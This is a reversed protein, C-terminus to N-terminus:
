CVSGSCRQRAMCRWPRIFLPSLLVSQVPPAPYAALKAGTLEFMVQGIAIRLPTAVLLGLLHLPLAKVARYGRPLLHRPRDRPYPLKEASADRRASSHTYPLFNVHPNFTYRYERERPAAVVGARLHQEDQQQRIWQDERKVLRAEIAEALQERDQREGQEGRADMGASSTRGHRAEGIDGDQQQGRGEQPAERAPHDSRRFRGGRWRDRGGLVAVRAGDISRQVRQGCAADKGRGGVRRVQQELRAVANEVAVIVAVEGADVRREGNKM